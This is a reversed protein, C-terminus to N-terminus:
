QGWKSIPSIFGSPSLVRGPDCLWYMAYDPNSYLHDSAELNSPCVYWPGGPCSSSTNPCALFRLPVSFSQKEDRPWCSAPLVPSQCGQPTASKTGGDASGCCWEMEVPFPPGSLLLMQGLTVSGARPDQSGARLGKIGQQERSGRQMCALGGRRSREMFSQGEDRRGGWSLTQPQSSASWNTQRGGACTGSPSLPRSGPGQTSLWIPAQQEYAQGDPSHPSGRPIPVQRAPTSQPLAPRPTPGPSPSSSIPAM